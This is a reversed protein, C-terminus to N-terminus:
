LSSSLRYVFGPLAQYCVDPIDLQPPGDPMRTVAQLSDLINCDSPEELVVNSLQLLLQAHSILPGPIMEFCWVVVAPPSSSPRIATGDDRLLSVAPLYLACDSLFTSRKRESSFAFDSIGSGSM